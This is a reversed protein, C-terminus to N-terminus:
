PLRAWRGLACHVGDESTLIYKTEREDKGFNDMNGTEGFTAALFLRNGFCVSYLATSVPSTRLTWDRGNPSTMIQGSSGVAVFLGNGWCVDLWGEGPATTLLTWDRGNPSTMVSVVATPPTKGRLAKVAVVPVVVLLALLLLAGLLLAKRPWPGTRTHILRSYAVM